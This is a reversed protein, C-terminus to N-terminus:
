CSEYFVSHLGFQCSGPPIGAMRLVIALDKHIAKIDLDYLMKESMSNEVSVGVYYVPDESSNGTEVSYTGAAGHMKSTNALIASKRLVFAKAGCESCFKANEDHLSHPCGRAEVEVIQQNAYVKYGIVACASASYGM